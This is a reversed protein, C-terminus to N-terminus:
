YHFTYKHWKLSYNQKIIDGIFVNRKTKRYGMFRNALHKPFDAYHFSFLFLVNMKQGWIVFRPDQQEYELSCM